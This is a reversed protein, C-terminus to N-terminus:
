PQPCTLCGRDPGLNRAADKWVKHLETISRYRHERDPNTARAAVRFLSESATWQERSREPNKGLLEFALAGMAFVNTVEDITAGLEFEEPSMFRSSGWMRGMTNVCPKKAYFDIDFVTTKHRDFDYMISGDYLDVAVYGCRAVEEHLSFVADLCDLKRRLRLQRFKFSPSQPHTYKPYREFDWHAHLCEGDAWEFVAVYGGKIDYHDLLRILNPHRIHEYVPMAAKLRVVAEIPDGDYEKTSAGAVKVFVKRDDKCAGFCINGSDQQDFVCFVKGYTGLWGFDFDSKIEFPVGDIEKKM